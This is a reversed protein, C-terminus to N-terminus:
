LFQTENNNFKVDDIGFDVNYFEDWRELYKYGYESKEEDSFLVIQQNVKSSAFLSFIFKSMIGQLKKNDIKKRLFDGKNGILQLYLDFVKAGEIKNEANPSINHSKLFQLDSDSFIKDYSNDVTGKVFVPVKMPIFCSINDQDILKFGEHVSKFRLNKILNKFDSFGIAMEKENWLNKDNL